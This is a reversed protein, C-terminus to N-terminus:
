NFNNYINSLTPLGSYIAKKLVCLIISPKEQLTHSHHLRIGHRTKCSQNMYLLGFKQDGKSSICHTLSCTKTASHWRPQMCGMNVVCTVTDPLKARLLQLAMDGCDETIGSAKRSCAEAEASARSLFHLSSLTKCGYPELRLQAPM